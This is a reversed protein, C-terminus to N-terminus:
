EHVAPGQTKIDDVRGSGRILFGLVAQLRNNPQAKQLDRELDRTFNQWRGNMAGKGLGHHIETGKGLKSGTDPTYYLYRFGDKTQVAIYIMFTQSFQMSWAVNSFHSDNWYTGDPSRLRYGNATGRGALEIVRGGREGDEVPTVTAGAPDSDYIDWGETSGDEADEYLIATPFSAANSPDSGQDVELGDRFTDNDSDPDLLNILGDDDPDTDWSAAWLDLENKDSLGDDDSDTDYPSTGMVTIEESDSLGDADSDQGDPIERLTKIDDVRGSGRVLFGLVAQLQNDPQADKLDYELDRVFTHWSGDLVQTGLGHHITTSKGLTDTATPTYNLYRFGKSTQVAINISFSEGYKMSWELIRYNTDNWDSGDTNRLRYGNNTGSGTFEIIWSNRERDDVNAIGAGAPNNDYIDWGAVAGDEADEYVIAAPVSHSDAPDTHQSIEVGDRIGDNDADPDVLNILGDGDPDGNWNVDWYRREDGDSIGDADTDTRYPNTGRTTMEEADAIGDGDTDLGAPLANLTRIDDVRGSGRILFGLVAQLENAPQAQKLDYELDRAFTRWTGDAAHKGLGHHIYTGTGLEDSNTPTYSLYRFGDKTQVAIYLMFNESYKMSWELATYNTDNWYSRDANRLRYGNNTGSGRFEIVKSNREPDDVNAIAAGAPSSDYIDWGDTAGDEADEYYRFTAGSSLRTLRNGTSDYTFAIAAGNDYAANTLRHRADYTYSVSAAYTPFPNPWFVLHLFCSIVPIPM